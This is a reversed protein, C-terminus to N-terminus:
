VGAGAGAGCRFYHPVSATARQQGQPADQQAPAASAAAQAQAGQLAAQARDQADQARQALRAQLYGPAFTRLLDSLVERQSPAREGHRRDSALAATIATLLQLADPDIAATTPKTPTKAEM